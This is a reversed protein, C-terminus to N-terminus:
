RLCQTGEAAVRKSFRAFVPDEATKEYAEGVWGGSTDPCDDEAM